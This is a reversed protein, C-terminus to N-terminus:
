YANKQTSPLFVAFTFFLIKIDMWVSWNEIYYIDYRVRNEMKDLTETEGRWGNIQAWGTIGPKMKHRAAYFTILNGYYDDHSLAHPRPGVLSMDGKLVNFIQPLEDLSTRRLIAGIKTIRDDDKQAQQILGTEVHDRMSRFKYMTFIEGNFGGRNQKFIIKREGSLFMAVAIAILVPSIMFLVVSGLVIDEVRKLWVKRGQLARHFVTVVPATTFPMSPMYKGFFAQPFCYSINCPLISLQALIDESEQMNNMNVAIIVDDVEHKLCYSRLGDKENLVPLGEFKQKKDFGKIYVALLKIDKRGEFQKILLKARESGGYIVLKRVFYGKARQKKFWRIFLIHALLILSYSVLFWYMLWLRSVDEGGKMMFLLIMHAFFTIAITTTVLSIQTIKSSFNKLNYLNVTHSVFLYLSISLFIGYYNLSNLGLDSFRLLQAIYAGMILIFVDVFRMVDFIYEEFGSKPASARAM